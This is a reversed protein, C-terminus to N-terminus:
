DHMCCKNNHCKNNTCHANLKANAQRCGNPLIILTPNDAGGALIAILLIKIPPPDVPQIALIFCWWVYTNYRVRKPIFNQVIRKLESPVNSCFSTTGM